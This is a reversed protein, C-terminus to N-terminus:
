FIWIQKKLREIDKILTHKETQINICIRENKFNKKDAIKNATRQKKKIM